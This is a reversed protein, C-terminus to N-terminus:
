ECLLTAIQDVLRALGSRLTQRKAQSILNNFLKHRYIHNNYVPYVALGDIDVYARGARGVVNAFEAPEIPVQKGKQADFRTISRFILTSCALDIGQALTPSAVVVPLQRRNLLDEVATLFPRPLAGHHTGVGVTLGEVAPHSEGLWERGIALAVALQEPGPAVVGDLYGQRAINTFERVLPEVLRREPSYLLVSQGDKAFNNAAAICLEKENQPFPKRRRRKAARSEVFRPVFPEEGGIFQLRGSSSSWDLFALLQRTPKWDVNIPEGPEDSRLWGTFDQFADDGTNFMASLCVIRRLRADERRLLRQILVEYRIERSGLGIMHGEDFVILGVDNLVNPDQRIAFDLKEPTAVVIEASALTAADAAMVGSAGYLSTVSAGLPAFTRALVKEIQASLARLPTVYIVRMDAALSRLICLEAIRTKGSSTPLSVILDDTADIARSAAKLQSPWLDLQPPTRVILSQILDRRLAPWREGAPANPVRQHLSQDWIDGLLHLSLTAVWWIPINGILAAQQVLTRLLRLAREHIEADGNYLATDGLGLARLFTASLAVVVADEPGFDDNEDGLRQAIVEDTHDRQNLWESIHLRLRALERRLLLALATEASSLNLSPGPSPLLAYSRAAFGALHFAAAAVVLHLGRFPDKPEGRRMASEISEAAVRFADDTKFYETSDIKELNADRLELALVLVGYGFHLLDDTLDESFRPGGLPVQGERWIMGRALGQALLRERANLELLPRLIAEIAAPDRAM